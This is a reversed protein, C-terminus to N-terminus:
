RNLLTPTPPSLQFNDMFIPMEESFSVRLPSMTSAQLPLPLGLFNTYSRVRSNIFYLHVLEFVFGPQRHVLLDIRFEVNANGVDRLVRDHQTLVSVQQLSRDGETHKLVQSLPNFPVACESGSVLGQFSM